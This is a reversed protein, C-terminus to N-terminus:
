ATVSWTVTSRPRIRATTCVQPYPIAFTRVSRPRRPPHSSSGSSSSRTPVSMLLPLSNRNGLTINRGDKSITIDATPPGSPGPTPTAAGVIVTCFASLGGSTVTVVKPGATTYTYTVFDAGGDQQVGGGNSSWAYIGNGGTANVIAPLSIGVNQTSPSCNLPLVSPTATTTTTPAPTASNGNEDWTFCDGSIGTNACCTIPGKGTRHIIPNYCDYFDSGDRGQYMPGTCTWLPDKPPYCEGSGGPCKPTADLVTRIHLDKGPEPTLVITRYVKVALSAAPGTPPDAGNGLLPCKLNGNGCFWMGPAPANFDTRYVCSGDGGAAFFQSVGFTFGGFQWWSLIGLTAVAVLTVAIMGPNDRFYQRIKEFM